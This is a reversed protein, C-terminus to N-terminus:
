LLLRSKIQFDAEQVLYLFMTCLCHVTPFIVLYNQENYQWIIMCLNLTALSIITHMRNHQNCGVVSNECRQMMGECLCWCYYFSMKWTLLYSQFITYYKLLDQHNVKSRNESFHSFETQLDYRDTSIYWWHGAHVSNESKCIIDQSPPQTTMMVLIFCLVAHKM